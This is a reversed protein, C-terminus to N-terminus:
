DEISHYLVIIGGQRAQRAQRGAQRGICIYLSSFYSSTLFHAIFSFFLFSSFPPPFLSLFVHHLLFWFQYGAKGVWDLGTRVLGLNLLFSFDFQFVDMGLRRKIRINISIRISIRISIGLRARIIWLIVM